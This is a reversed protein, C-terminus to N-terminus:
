IVEEIIQPPLWRRLCQNLADFDIPKPLIDNMSNSLFMQVAGKIVNATLAVIPVQSNWDDLDRIYRTAEVGDIGPMMHDMFILDYKKDQALEIAEDGSRALDPIIEFIELMMEAVVLNTETDDVVLVKATPAIFEIVELEEVVVTGDTPVYPIYATFSSGEGYVSDVLIGGGLLRCLNYTIPLGLGTGVVGRNKRVDLQEFPLFLRDINNEQIGIGTDKVEFHLNNENDLCAMFMIKGKQTYKVANSLLNTIIQRLRNGDGYVYEPLNPNINIEFELHKELCLVQFMSHINDLLNYLNYNVNVIEIKGAEIKSFDLIDNIINLLSDSSKQIDSVYKRLEPALELRELASSMGIISNMPTRIEHSMTALFDSKARNAAEAKQKEMTFDTMDSMLILIGTRTISTKDSKKSDSDLEDSEKSMCQIEISYHRPHGSKSFDVWANLSASKNKSSGCAVNEITEKFVRMNEKTFYKSFIEEYSHNKIFDFNPTGTVTLLAKTSLVFHGYEDLLAIISPCNELLLDTYAKQRANAASLASGIADKAEATRTVQELFRKSMRADRALKRMEMNLENIQRRLEDNEEQLSFSGV